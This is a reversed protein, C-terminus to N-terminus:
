QSHAACFRHFGCGQEAYVMPRNQEACFNPFDDPGFAWGNM